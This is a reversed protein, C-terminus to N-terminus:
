ERYVVATVEIAPAVDSDVTVQTGQPFTPLATYDLEEITPTTRVANSQEDVLETDVLLDPDITHVVWARQQGQDIWMVDAAEGVAYLDPLDITTPTYYPQYTTATSGLELQANSLGLLTGIEPSPYVWMGVLVYNTNATTTFSISSLASTQHTALYKDYGGMDLDTYESAICGQTFSGYDDTASFTYTTNPLVPVIYALGRRGSFEMPNTSSIPYTLIGSSVYCAYVSTSDLLNRGRATMAGGVCRIEASSEWSPIGDQECAGTIKVLKCSDRYTNPITVGGEGTATVTIPTAIVEDGLSLKAPAWDGRMLVAEGNPTMIM